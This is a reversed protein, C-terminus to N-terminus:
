PAFVDPLTGSLIAVISQRDAATIAAFADDAPPAALIAKLRGYVANRVDGPLATFAETYILYSLPYRFLRTNLDLERLSRGSADFPGLSEFHERFGSGGAISGTLATEDTMLMARVLPEVLEALRATDVESGEEALRGVTEFRLRSIENQVEVQHELVMLAVIDSLPTLYASTDILANLDEVNGVRLAELDQLDEVRGVVVNGLHVQEGHRGTVYWGGWRNRLPTAQSTLIWAEHSVLEGDAGIYGSGLLFRPVGGGSLGYTDHCRLCTVLEREAVPPIGAANAFSYFVPGLGPDFSAIEFSASGRAWAVYSDDNFYIARPTAANIFRTQLSTRSFVLVQSSDDIELAELVADLYGREATFALNVEGRGVATAFRGIRGAPEGTAYGIAPYEAAYPAPGLNGASENGGTGCGTLLLGTALLAGTWSKGPRTMGGDLIDCHVDLM